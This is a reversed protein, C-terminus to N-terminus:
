LRKRESYSMKHSNQNKLLKIWTIHGSILFIGDDGNVTLGSGVVTPRLQLYAVMLLVNMPWATSGNFRCATSGVNFRAATGGASATGAARQSCVSYNYVDGRAPSPPRRTARAPLEQM